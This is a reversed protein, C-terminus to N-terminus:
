RSVARMGLHSAVFTLVDSANALLSEMESNGYHGGLVNARLLVPRACSQAAQLAAACKMAAWAPSRNDNLASTILTAPYWTGPRVRHLPSYAFLVPFQTSDAASGCQGRHRGRDYRLNDIPPVGAMAVALLEPRQTMVAAVLQGGNSAGQIALRSSSTYREAILFEAAAIIDDFTTQKRELIAATYWSRGFEGGGRLSPVAYVGGLALWTLIDPSYGPLTSTGSAGCGYLLTPNTGDLKIDKRHVPFMPVRTGDKSVYWRQSQVYEGAPFASPLALLTKSAGTTLDHQTLTPGQLYSESEIDLLSDASGAQALIHSLLPPQIERVLRGDLTRVRVLPQVDRLYAAVLRGNLLRVSQLVDASEPIIDRWNAAAPNAIHIDVLRHRPAGNDTLVAFYTGSTRIVRYAADRTAALPLLPASMKPATASGFELVHLRSDEWGIEDSDAGSGESIIAYRGDTSLSRVTEL